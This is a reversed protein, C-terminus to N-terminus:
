KAKTEGSISCGKKIEEQFSNIHELSVLAIFPDSNDCSRFAAFRSKSRPYVTAMRGGSSSYMFIPLPWEKATTDVPGVMNIDVFAVVKKQQVFILRKYANPVDPGLWSFGITHSMHQKGEEGNFFYVSDWAFTTLSDLNVVRYGHTMTRVPGLAVRFKQLLQEDSHFANEKDSCGTLVLLAYFLWHKKM